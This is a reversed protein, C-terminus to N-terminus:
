CSLLAICFVLLTYNVKSFYKYANKTFTNFNFTRLQSLYQLVSTNYFTITAITCVKLFTSNITKYDLYKISMIRYVNTIHVERSTCKLLNVHNYSLSTTDIILFFINLYLISLMQIYNIHYNHSMWINNRSTSVFFSVEALTNNDSLNCHLIANKYQDKKRHVARM